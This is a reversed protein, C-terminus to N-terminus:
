EGPVVLGGDRVREGPAHPVAIKKPKPMQHELKRLGRWLTGVAQRNLTVTHTTLATEVIIVGVAEAGEPEFLALTCNTPLIPISVTHPQAEDSM